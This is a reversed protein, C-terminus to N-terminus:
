LLSTIDCSISPTVCKKLDIKLKTNSLCGGHGNLQMINIYSEFAIALNNFTKQPFYGQPGM